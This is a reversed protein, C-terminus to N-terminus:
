ASQEEELLIDDIADSVIEWWDAYCGNKYILKRYRDAIRPILPTLQEETADEHGDLYFTMGERVDDLDYAAQQENFAARLEEPTLPFECETGNVTRKITM